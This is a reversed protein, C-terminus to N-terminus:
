RVAGAASSSLELLLAEPVNSIAIPKGTIGVSQGNGKVRVVLNNEKNFLVATTLDALFAQRRLAGPTTASVAVPKNNLWVEIEGAVQGLVLWLKEGRWSLDPRFKTRYWVAGNYNAFGQEALSVGVRVKPWLNENVEGEGWKDVAGQAWPDPKFFWNEALRMIKAQKFQFGDVYFRVREGPQLEIRGRWGPRWNRPIDQEDLSFLSYIETLAIPGGREDAVFDLRVLDERNTNSLLPIATQRAYASKANIILRPSGLHSSYEFDHNRYKAVFYGGAARATDLPQATFEVFVYNRLDSVSLSDAVNGRERRAEKASVQWTWPADLMIKERPGDQPMQLRPPLSFRLKTTLSDALMNNLTVVQLTPQENELGGRFPFTVHDVGQFFARERTKGDEKLEIRYVWEIDAYRGWYHVLGVPPTGGDENSFVMTYEISTLRRTRSSENWRPTYALLLPVDSKRMEWRGFVIPAHAFIPYEEHEEEYGELLVNVIRMHVKAESTDARLLELTHMGAPVLGLHVEYPHYEKGAYTVLHSCLRGDIAVSLWAGPLDKNEWNTNASLQLLAVVHAPKKMVFERAWGENFFVTRASLKKSWSPKTAAQASLVEPAVLAFCVCLLLLKPKLKM